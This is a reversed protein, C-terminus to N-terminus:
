ASVVNTISYRGFGSFSDLGADMTVPSVSHSLVSPFIVMSNNQLPIEYQYEDFTFDGGTFRKPDKYLWIIATLCGQDAHPLYNDSEEYYSLLTLDKVSATIYKFIFNQKELEVLLNRDFHKRSLTLINSSERKSYFGDLLVGHNQKLAEGNPSLASGTKKPPQMINSNTLFNLEIWVKDLEKQNYYDKIIVHPFPLEHYFVEM